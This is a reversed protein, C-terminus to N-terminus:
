KPALQTEVVCSFGFAGQSAELEGVSNTGLFSGGGDEWEDTFHGSEPTKVGCETSGEAHSPNGLCQLFSPQATSGGWRGGSYSSKVPKTYQTEM